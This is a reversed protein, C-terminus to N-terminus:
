YIVKGKSSVTKFRINHGGNERICQKSLSIIKECVDIDPASQMEDLLVKTERHNHKKEYSKGWNKRGM